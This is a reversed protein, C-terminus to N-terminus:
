AKLYWRLRDCMFIILFLICVHGTADLLAPWQGPLYSEIGRLFSHAVPRFSCVHGLVYLLLANRGLMTLLGLGRRAKWIDCCVFLAGLLLYSYGSSVLVMSPTWIHKVVPLGVANLIWGMAACGAGAAFLCAAKRKADLASKLVEGGIAGSLVTAAFGLSSVLWTYTYSSNFVVRGAADVSAMDRFRGFVMRDVGECLNGAPTWDGGGFGGVRVFQMLAWFVALLAAATVAQGKWRFRLVPLVSFIWGVAIAQLTNTFLYIHRPDLALLNGQVMMGFVWLLAMRRVARWCLAGKTQYKRLAFPMTVGTIFLFLPMIQDWLVYGQWPVHEIQARMWGPAGCIGLLLGLVPELGMLLFMDLGRLADICFVREPKKADTM